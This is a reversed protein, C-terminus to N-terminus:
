KRKKFLFRTLIFVIIVLLFVFTTIFSASIKHASTITESPNWAVTKKVVLEIEEEPEEATEDDSDLPEEYDTDADFSENEDIDIFNDPPEIGDKIIIQGAGGDFSVIYPEAPIPADISSDASFVGEWLIEDTEKDKLYLKRGAASSGNSFGAEIHVTGDNNSDVSLFPIQAALEFGTAMFAFLILVKRM